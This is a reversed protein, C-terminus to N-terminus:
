GLEKQIYAVIDAIPVNSKIFFESAGLAKVKKEDSDQSLNSLVAVKPKLGKKKMVELTTFGDMVPMILDLLMLDIKEKEIIKIAEEGNPANFVEYGMNTLKLKLANALSKEDETILIKKAGAM